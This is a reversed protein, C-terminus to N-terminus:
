MTLLADHHRVDELQWQIAAVNIAFQPFAARRAPFCHPAEADLAMMPSLPRSPSLPAQQLRADVLQNMLIADKGPALM